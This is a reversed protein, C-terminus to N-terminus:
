RPSGSRRDKPAVEVICDLPDEITVVPVGDAQPEVLAYAVGKMLSETHAASGADLDNEQWM